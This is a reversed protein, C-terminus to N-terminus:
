RYFHACRADLFLHLGVRSQKECMWCRKLLEFDNIRISPYLPLSTHDTIKLVMDQAKSHSRSCCLVSVLGRSLWIIYQLNVQLEAAMKEREALYVRIKMLAISHYFSYYGEVMGSVGLYVFIVLSSTRGLLHMKHLEKSFQCIILSM